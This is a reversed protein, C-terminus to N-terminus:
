VQSPVLDGVTIFILQNFLTNDKDKGKDKNDKNNNNNDRIDKQAARGAADTGCHLTFSGMRGM